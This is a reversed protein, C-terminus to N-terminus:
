MDSRLPDTIALLAHPSEEVREVRRVTRCVPGFCARLKTELIAVGEEPRELVHAELIRSDLAPYNAYDRLIREVADIPAQLLATMEFRYEREIYQARAHRVEFAQAPAGALLGVLCLATCRGACGRWRAG